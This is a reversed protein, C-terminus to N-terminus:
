PKQAESSLHREIESMAQSQLDASQADLWTIRPEARFWTMQRRILRHTAYRYKSLAEPLSLLGRLHDIMQKYGLGQLVPLEPSFGMSLVRETEAVLGDQVQREARADARAYLKQRDMTLGIVLAPLPRHRQAPVPEGSEEIIELARVVRRINSPHLRDATNPDVTAIRGIAALGGEKEVEAELRRRRTEDPEVRPISTGDLLARAYHGTGGVVLAIKGREAISRLASTADDVFDAVTYSQDPDVMDLLHHPITQRDLLSPKCTGIDLYRYVQRSDASIIEADLRAALTTALGSKGVATPGLIAVIPPLPESAVM